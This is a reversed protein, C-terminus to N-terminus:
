RWIEVRIRGPRVTGPEVQVPVRRSASDAEPPPTPGVARVSGDRRLTVNVHWGEPATRLTKEIGTPDVIGAKTANEVTRDLLIEPTRREPGDGIADDVAGAYLALAAGVAFVAVIAALPEVQGRSVPRRSRECRRGCGDDGSWRRM